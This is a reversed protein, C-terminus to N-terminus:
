NKEQRLAQDPDPARGYANLHEIVTFNGVLALYSLLFLASPTYLSLFIMFITGVYFLLSITYAPAAISLLLSNRVANVLRKQQQELLFPWLYLQLILWGWALFLLTVRVCPSFQDNWYILGVAATTIVGWRLSVWGYIRMGDLLDRWRVPQGYAIRNAALMLAATILPWLAVTPLSVLWLVNLSILVPACRGWNKLSRWLILLAEFM